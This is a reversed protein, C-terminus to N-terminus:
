ARPFSSFGLDPSSPCCKIEKLIFQSFYCLINLVVLGSHHSKKLVSQTVVCVSKFGACWTRPNWPGILSHPTNRLTHM